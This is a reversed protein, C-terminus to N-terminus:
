DFAPDVLRTFMKRQNPKEDKLEVKPLPVNLLRAVQTGDIYKDGMLYWNMAKLFIEKQERSEFMMVFFYESDNMLNAEEAIRKDAARLAQKMLDAETSVDAELDDTPEFHIPNDIVPLSLDAKGKISARKDKVGGAGRTKTIPQKSKM